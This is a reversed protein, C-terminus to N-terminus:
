TPCLRELVHTRSITYTHGPDDGFSYFVRVGDSWCIFMGTCGTQRVVGTDMLFGSPLQGGWMVEDGAKLTRAEDITM